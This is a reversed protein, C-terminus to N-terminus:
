QYSTWIKQLVKSPFNIHKAVATFLFSFENLKLDSCSPKGVALGGQKNGYVLIRHLNFIGSKDSSGYRFYVINM